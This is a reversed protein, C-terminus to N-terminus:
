AVYIKTQKLVMYSTFLPVETNRLLNIAFRINSQGVIFNNIAQIFDAMTNVKFTLDLGM